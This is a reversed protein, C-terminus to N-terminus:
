LNKSLTVLKYSRLIEPKLKTNQETWREESEILYGLKMISNRDFYDSLFVQIRLTTKNMETLIFECYRLLSSALGKKMYKSLVSFLEISGMNAGIDRILAVAVIGDIFLMCFYLFVMDKDIDGYKLEILILLIM